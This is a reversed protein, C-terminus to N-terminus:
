SEVKELKGSVTSGGTRALRRRRPRRRHRALRHDRRRRRVGVAEARDRRRPRVAQRRELRRYVRGGAVAPSSDVRARTVFTWASKGTAADIAHVTKDRGGVIVRASGHRAGGVLLVSVPSRSRSLAVRDERTQLDLALVEDDFTGVYARSATSRRRRAPTRARASDRVAGQRRRRPRRPLARRLRRHLRHREPGGAHRAGPRRDAAEVAAQRDRRDLAYLHTDYSGILM